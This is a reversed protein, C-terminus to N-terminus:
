PPPLPRVESGALKAEEIEKQVESLNAKLEEGREPTYSLSHDMKPTKAQAQTALSRTALSRVSPTLLRRLM